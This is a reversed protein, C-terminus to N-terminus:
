KLSGVILVWPSKLEYFVPQDSIKSKSTPWPTYYRFSVRGIEDEVIMVHDRMTM